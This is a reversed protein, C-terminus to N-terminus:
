ETGTTRPIKTKPHRANFREMLKDLVYKFSRADRRLDRKVKGRPLVDAKATCDLHSRELSILVVQMDEKGVYTPQKPM